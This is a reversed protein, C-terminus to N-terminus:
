LFLAPDQYTMSGGCNSGDENCPKNDITFTGPTAWACDAELGLQNDGMAVRIYGLEGWYQGWSNRVNWYQKGSAKDFGWGTVSIIHDIDKGANPNDFVGGAYDLIEAADIGCAIPGRKYIEAQMAAAGNVQGYEAITANPYESLEVCKGGSAVFTSCTRAVNIPKCTTDVNGCFGESSDSSCAIYQQATDYPIHGSQKIFEYTGTHSGGYCSGAVQAGCNLVYQISLNIEDGAGKRAIKIRDALSSVAGHAWCSGCYQPIHQNLSKTVLSQGNPGVHWDFSNPLSAVDVYDKPQKLAYSNKIKHGPMVKYESRYEAAAVAVILLASVLTSVGM